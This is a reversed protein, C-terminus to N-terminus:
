DEEDKYVYYGVYAKGDSYPLGQDTVEYGKEKLFAVAKDHAAKAQEETDVQFQMDRYGFGFGSSDSVLDLHNSLQVGTEMADPWDERYPIGVDLEWSM